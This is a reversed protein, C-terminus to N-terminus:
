TDVESMTAFNQLFGNQLVLLEDKVPKLPCTQPSGGQAGLQEVLIQFGDPDDAQVQAGLVCM